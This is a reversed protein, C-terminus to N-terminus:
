AEADREFEACAREITVPESAATKALQGEAEWARAIDQAKQWDRVTERAAPDRPDRLVQRIEEGNLFGDIWIPCHCRRYKRGESRHECKKLHRRYTNVM